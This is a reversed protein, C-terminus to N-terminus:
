QNSQAFALIYGNIDKVSFESTGYFTAHMDQVITVKGKVKEYLTKVDPVDIYLTLSGGIEKSELEPIEKSLNEKSQFMVEVNGNKMMAWQFVGEEQVTMITKFGLINKYFDITKNVDIVMLNPTLKKM